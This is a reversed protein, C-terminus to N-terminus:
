ARCFWYPTSGLRRVAAPRPSYLGTTDLLVSTPLCRLRRVCIIMVGLSSWNISRISLAGSCFSQVVLMTVCFYMLIYDISAFCAYYNHKADKKQEMVGLLLSVSLCKKSAVLLSGKRIWKMEIYIEYLSDLLPQKDNFLMAFIVIEKKFM